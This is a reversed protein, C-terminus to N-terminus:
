SLCSEARPTTSRTDAQRNTQRRTPRGGPFPNAEDFTCSYWSFLPVIFVDKAVEAPGMDVDIEDCIDMLRFM